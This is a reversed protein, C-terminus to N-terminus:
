TGYDFAENVGAGAETASWVVSGRRGPDVGLLCLDVHTVGTYGSGDAVVDGAANYQGEVVAPVSRSNTKYGVIDGRPM